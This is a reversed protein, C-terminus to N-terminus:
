TKTWDFIPRVVFKGIESPETGGPDAFHGCTEVLVCLLTPWSPAIYGPDKSSGDIAPPPPLVPIADLAKEILAKVAAPGDSDKLKEKAADVSRAAFSISFSM